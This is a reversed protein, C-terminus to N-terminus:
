ALASVLLRMRVKLVFGTILPPCALDEEMQIMTTGPLEIKGKVVFPTGAIILREDEHPFASFRSIDVARHVELSFIVNQSGGVQHFGKLVSVNASTSSFAWWVKTEGVAYTAAIDADVGRYYTGQCSPLKHLATCLLKLFPFWHQKLPQRDAAFLASNLAKFVPSQQTYINIAGAQDKTLGALGAPGARAELELSRKNAAFILVAEQADSLGTALQCSLTKTSMRALL